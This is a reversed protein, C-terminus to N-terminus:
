SGGELPPLPPVCTEWHSDPWPRGAAELAEAFAYEFVGLQEMRDDEGQHISHFTELAAVFARRALEQVGADFGGLSEIPWHALDQFAKDSPDTVM